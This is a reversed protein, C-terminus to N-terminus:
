KRLEASIENFVATNAARRTEALARRAFPRPEIRQTGHELARAHKASFNLTARIAAQDLIIRRSNVLRSTDNAPAEGPASAQHTVGRRRYKRGTKPPNMILDVARQEVLGIAVVVGRLAGRRVKAVIADSKWDVAM